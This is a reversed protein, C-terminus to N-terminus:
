SFMRKKLKQKAPATSGCQGTPAKRWVRSERGEGPGPQVRRPSMVLEAEFWCCVLVMRSSAPRLGVRGLCFRKSHRHFFLDNRCRRSMQGVNYLEGTSLDNCNLKLPGRGFSFSGFALAPRDLTEGRRNGTKTGGLSFFPGSFRVFNTLRSVYPPDL